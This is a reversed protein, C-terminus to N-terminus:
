PQPGGYRQRGATHVIHVFGDSFPNSWDPDGPRKRVYRVKTPHTGDPIKMTNEDMLAGIADMIPGGSQAPDHLVTLEETVWRLRNPQVGDPDQGTDWIVYGAVVANLTVTATYTGTGKGAVIVERVGETVRERVINHERDVLTYGVTTLGARSPLFNVVLPIERGVYGQTM